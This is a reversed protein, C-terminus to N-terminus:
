AQDKLAGFHGTILTTPLEGLWGSDIGVGVFRYRPNLLVARHLPSDLWDRVIAEPSPREEPTRALVEGRLRFSHSMRISARHGFYESDLMWETYDRSSRRLRVSPKLQHLGHARRAQNIAEVFSGSQTEAAAASALGVSLMMAILVVLGARLLGNM